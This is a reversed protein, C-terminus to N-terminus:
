VRFAVHRVFRIRSHLRSISYLSFLLFLFIPISFIFNVSEFCDSRHRPEPRPPCPDYEEFYYMNRLSGNAELFTFGVACMFMIFSLSMCIVYVASELSNRAM